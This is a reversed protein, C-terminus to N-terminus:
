KMINQQTNLAVRRRWQSIMLILFSLTGAALLHYGGAIIYGGSGIVGLISMFLEFLRLPVAFHNYIIVTLSTISVLAALLLLLGSNAHSGQLLFFANYAIFFPLVFGGIALKFAVGATKWYNAQAISAGAMAAVAVPPTVASIIAFYFVFFHAQLELMGSRVLIPAVIISVLIYAGVTPVGCGLFLSVLMTLVLLLPLNDGAIGEVVGTLKVGLATSYLTQSIIGVCGLLVAIKAGAIAGDVFGEVLQDLTVSQEKRLSRHAIWLLAILALLSIVAYFATYGPSFRWLLMVCIITLPIIFLIGKTILVRPNLAQQPPTLAHKWAIIQVGAGVSFYYLLAPIIAAIMVDWYPIGLYSAMLFAAAGMVPPMLQGGTSATAEIAGAWEPRYGAKKMMPITFVGTLVVNAVASGTVTGILGSGIVATLAPGGSLVRGLLKGLELVFDVVGVAGLIGGFIMFPFIFNASISMFSGLIGSFGIGLRSVMTDVAEGTHGLPGPIHHGFAYYLICAIAVAPITLGWSEWSAEIVIIILIVGIIVDITDPLGVSDELHHYRIKIYSAVVLSALTLALYFTAGWRRKTNRLSVLFVLILSFGLHFDQHELAGHFLYQTSTLHYAVGVLAFVMIIRDLVRRDM